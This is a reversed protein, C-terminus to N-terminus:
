AAVAVPESALALGYGRLCVKIGQFRATAALWNSGAHSKLEVVEAPVTLATRWQEFEAPTDLQFTITTDAGYTHITVYPTPLSADLGALSALAAAAAAFDATPATATPQHNM